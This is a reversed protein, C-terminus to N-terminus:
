AAVKYGLKEALRSVAQLPNFACAVEQDDPFIAVAMWLVPHEEDSYRLQFKSVGSLNIFGLANSLRRHAEPGIAGELDYPVSSVSPTADRLSHVAM